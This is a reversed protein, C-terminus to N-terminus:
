EIENDSRKQYYRIVPYHKGTFYLAQLIRCAKLTNKAWIHELLIYWHDYKDIFYAYSVYKSQFYQIPTM